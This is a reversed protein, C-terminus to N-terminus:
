DAGNWEAGKAERVLKQFDELSLVVLPKKGKARTVLAFKATELEKKRKKKESRYLSDHTFTARYKCEVVWGPVDVVDAGGIGQAAPNRKGDLATAAQRELHKWSKSPM